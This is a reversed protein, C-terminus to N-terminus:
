RCPTHPRLDAKRIEGRFRGKIVEPIRKESTIKILAVPVHSAGAKRLAAARHRGDHNTVIGKEVVMFPMLIGLGKKDFAAGSLSFENYQDLSLSLEHLASVIDDNRTNCYIFADIPCEVIVWPETRLYMEPSIYLM